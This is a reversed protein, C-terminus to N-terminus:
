IIANRWRFRDMTDTEACVWVNWIMRSPKLEHIKPRERPKRGEIVIKISNKGAEDESRRQV